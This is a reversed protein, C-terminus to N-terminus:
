REKAGVIGEKVSPVTGAIEHQGMGGERWTMQHDLRAGRTM